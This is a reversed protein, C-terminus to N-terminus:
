SLASPSTVKRLTDHKASARPAPFALVTATIRHETRAYITEYGVEIAQEICLCLQVERDNAPRVLELAQEIQGITRQLPSIATISRM